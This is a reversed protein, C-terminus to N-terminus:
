DIPGDMWRIASQFRMASEKGDKDLGTERSERETIGNFSKKKWM